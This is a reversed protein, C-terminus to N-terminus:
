LTSHIIYIDVEDPMLSVYQGHKMIYMYAYYNLQEM